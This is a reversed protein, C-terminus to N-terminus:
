PPPPTPLPHLPPIASFAPELEFLDNRYGALSDGGFIILRGEVNALVHAYRSPLQAPYELAHNAWSGSAPDYVHLGHPYPTLLDYGGLLLLKQQFVCSASWCRPGPSTGSAIETKTWHISSPTPPFELEISDCSPEASSPGVDDLCLSSSCSIHEQLPFTSSSSLEIHSISSKANEPFLSRQRKSLHSSAQAELDEGADSFRRKSRKSLPRSLYHRVSTPSYQPNSSPESSTSSSMLSSTSSRASFSIESPPSGEFSSGSYSILSSDHTSPSVFFQPDDMIPFERDEEADRFLSPVAWRFLSKLSDISM